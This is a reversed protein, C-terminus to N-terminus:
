LLRNRLAITTTFVRRIRRDTPTSTAGNYTYNQAQSTLNDDLTRALLSIRISVVNAMNVVSDAAVYYNATKDADTDEGYLIQMQEIGEVLEQADNAGIRRYLSPQGNSTRIYYSITNIPYVQGNTFSKSLPQTANGPINTPSTGTSAVIEHAIVNGTINSIQFVDGSSCDSVVVQNGAALGTTNALTLDENGIGNGDTDPHSTVINGQGEAKRITIVDSGGLPSTINADIAPTWASSSTAEFGQLPTNFAYKFDTPTNLHSTINSQSNCGRFGAMRIDQAMLDVAFRANEQLRAQGESMRYTQKTNIFVQLIGGILFAGILMAIMIEILTMGSQHRFIMNVRTNSYDSQPASSYASIKNLRSISLTDPMIPALTINLKRCYTGTNNKKNLIQRRWAPHVKDQVIRPILQEVIM